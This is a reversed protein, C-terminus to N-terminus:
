GRGIVSRVARYAGRAVERQVSGDPLARSAVARVLSQGAIGGLRQIEDYKERVFDLHAEYSCKWMIRGDEATPEYFGRGAFVDRWFSEFDFACLELAHEHAERGLRKRENEDSLLAAIERAAAKADGYEVVRVGRHGQVLTVFPIDFMVTPVGYAKAEALALPYGEAPSTMLLVESELFYPEPDSTPGCLIVSDRLGLDEIRAEMALRDAEAAPGVVRLVADPELKCVEEMIPIVAFPNKENPDLRGLWLIRKGDLAAQSRSAADVTPPNVTVHVRENFQGWFAANVSSLCVVGDCLRYGAPLSPYLSLAPNMLMTFAGHTHVVVKMGLMKMLLVDWALTLCLWQCYVVTDVGHAVLADRLARARNGYTDPTCTRFDPIVVREVGEPLPEDGEAPPEDTLLVVSLGMGQWVDILDRTVREAGGMGMKFHYAAVTRTPKESPALIRADALESVTKYSDDWRMQALRSVVDVPDWTRALVDLGEPRQDSSLVSHLRDVANRCFVGKIFSLDEECEGAIGHREFLSRAEDVVFAGDSAVREFGALSASQSSGTDIRYLYAPANPDGYLSKARCALSVMALCDEGYYVPRGGIEGYADALLDTRVFKGCLNWRTKQDGFVGHVIDSGELVGDHVVFFSRADALVAEDARQEVIPLIPFQVIDYAKEALARVCFEVVGPELTDDADLFTAYLGRAHSVGTKRAEFLQKNVHHRVMRVRSDDESCKMVIEATGDTSADDVVVVEVDDCTQALVSEIARQVFQEGNFVPVIVSVFPQEM